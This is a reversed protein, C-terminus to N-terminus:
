LMSIVVEAQQLGSLVDVLSSLVPLYVNPWVTSSSFTIKQLGPVHVETNLRVTYLSSHEPHAPLSSRDDYTQLINTM